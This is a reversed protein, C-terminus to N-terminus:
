EDTDADRPKTDVRRSLSFSNRCQEQKKKPAQDAEGELKRDIRMIRNNNLLLQKLRLLRPFGQLLTIANDSLDISDFQNQPNHQAPHSPACPSFSSSDSAETAGLNEIQAIKNGKLDIEYMKVCSMYQHSHSILEATLRGALRPGFSGSSGARAEVLVSSM